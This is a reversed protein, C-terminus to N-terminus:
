PAGDEDMVALIFPHVARQAIPPESTASARARVAAVIEADSSGPPLGLMSWLASRLNILRFAPGCHLETM